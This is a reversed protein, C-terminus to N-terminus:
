ARGYKGDGRWHPTVPMLRLRVGAVGDRASARRFFAVRVRMTRDTVAAAATTATPTATASEPPSSRLSRRAEPAADSAPGDCDFVSVASGAGAPLAEAEAGALALGLVLGLVPALVLALGLEEPAAAGPSPVRGSLAGSVGRVSRGALGACPEAGVLPVPEPPVEPPEPEPEPEPDPEPEPVTLPSASDATSARTLLSRAAAPHPGRVTLAFSLEAARAYLSVIARLPTM